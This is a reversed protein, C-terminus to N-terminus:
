RLELIADGLAVRDGSRLPTPETIRHGNVFTGNTSDLDEALCRDGYRAIRLHTHSVYPDDDLRLRCQSSRGITVPTDLDLTLGELHRPACVVLTPASPPTERRSADAPLPARPESRLRDGDLARATPRDSRVQLWVVGMVAAFFAYLAVLLILRLLSLVDDNM